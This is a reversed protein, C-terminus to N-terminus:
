AAQTLPISPNANPKGQALVAHFVLTLNAAMAWFLWLLSRGNTGVQQLGVIGDAHAGHWALSTLGFAVVVGIMLGRERLRGVQWGVWLFGFALLALLSLTEKPGGNWFHGGKETSWFGGVMLGAAVLVVGAQVARIAVDALTRTLVYRQRAWVIRALGVNALMWALAWASFGTATTLGHLLLWHSNRGAGPLYALPLQDAVLFGCSGALSSALGLIGGRHFLELVFGAAATIFGAWLISEQLSTIPPGNTLALRCCFGFGACALCLGLGIQGIVHIKWSDRVATSWAFCVGATLGAVWAWRFPKNQNCWLELAGHTHASSPQFTQNTQRIAELFRPIATTLRPEDGDRYAERFLALSAAVKAIEEGPMQQPATGLYRRPEGNRRLRLAQSWREPSASFDAMAHFSFWIPNHMDLALVGLQGLSAARERAPQGGARIRDYLALRRRVERGATAVPTPVTELKRLTESQRLLAPAIGRGHIEAPSGNADAGQYERLLMHRLEAHDCLIFPENEWDAGLERGLQIGRSDTAEHLLLWSIMIALPDHGAYHEQGTIVGVSVRCFTDFPQVRGEDQVTWARLPELVPSKAFPIHLRSRPSSDPRPNAIGLLYVACGIVVIDFAVAATLLIAVLWRAPPRPTARERWGRMLSNNGSAEPTTEVRRPSAHPTM